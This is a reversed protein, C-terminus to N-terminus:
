RRTHAGAGVAPKRHGCRIVNRERKSMKQMVQVNQLVVSLFSVVFTKENM